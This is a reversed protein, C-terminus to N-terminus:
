AVTVRVTTTATHLVAQDSTLIIIQNNKRLKEQLENSVRVYVHRHWIDKYIETLESKSIKSKGTEMHKKRCECLENFRDPNNRLFQEIREPALRSDFKPLKIAFQGDKLVM